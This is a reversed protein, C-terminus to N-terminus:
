PRTSCSLRVPPLPLSMSLIHPSSPQRGQLLKSASSPCSCPAPAAGTAIPRFSPDCRWHDGSSVIAPRALSTSISHLHANHAAAPTNRRIAAYQISLPRIPPLGLSLLCPATAYRVRRVASCSVTNITRSRHMILGTRARALSRSTPLAREPQEQQQQVARMWGGGCCAPWGLEAARGSAADRM